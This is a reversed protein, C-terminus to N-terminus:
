GQGHDRERDLAAQVDELLARLAAIRLEDREPAACLGTLLVLIEREKPQLDDDATM